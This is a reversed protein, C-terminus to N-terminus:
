RYLFKRVSKHFVGFLLSVRIEGFIAILSRHFPNFSRVIDSRDALREAAAFTAKGEKLCGIRVFQSAKGWLRLAWAKRVDLHVFYKSVVEYTYKDNALENGPNVKRNTIRLPNDHVRQTYCHVGDYKFYYGAAAIRINLNWEQSSRLRLDFGGVNQLVEAPYLPLSTLINKSIRQAIQKTLNNACQLGDLNCELVRKKLFRREEWVIDRYGYRILKADESSEFIEFQNKLCNEVLVDDSDLFKIYSGLANRLGYNRASPAGSNDQRLVTVCSYEAAVEYSGDTSGDDVVIHQVSVGVQRKVSEICERLFASGNFVPTIVTVDYKM